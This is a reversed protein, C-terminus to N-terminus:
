VRGPRRKDTLLDVNTDFDIKVQDLQASVAVIQDELLEDYLTEQEEPPIRAVFTTFWARTAAATEKVDLAKLRHNILQGLETQQTTTLPM